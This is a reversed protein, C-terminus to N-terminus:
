RNRRNDRRQLFKDLNALVLRQAGFVVTRTLPLRLRSQLPRTVPYALPVQGAQGKGSGPNYKRM